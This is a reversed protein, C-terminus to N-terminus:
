KGMNIKFSFSRIFQLSNKELHLNKKVRLSQFAIFSIVILFSLLFNSLFFCLLVKSYLIPSLKLFM